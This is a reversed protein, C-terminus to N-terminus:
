SVTEVNNDFKGKRRLDFWALIAITLAGAFNLILDIM